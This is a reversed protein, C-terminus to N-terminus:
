QWLYLVLRWSSLHVCSVDVNMGVMKFVKKAPNEKLTYRYFERRGKYWKISYLVDGQMDYHCALMVNEGARVAAPVGVEYIQIAQVSEPIPSFANITIMLALTAYQKFWILRLSSRQNQILRRFSKIPNGRM